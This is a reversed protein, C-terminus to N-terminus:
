FRWVLDVTFRKDIIGDNEDTLPIEYAFGLDASECLRSRFGVAATVLDRNQSANSSGFNLLDNGEFTAVAPVAGGAQNFFNFRGSGTSLVHHWNVEVLPIFWPVVEYSTHASLFCDDSMQGDFAFSVGGAGALQLRDWAKATSVILNIAGDGEGQFVDHNGTPFEFTATGSLVFSNEPDYIFAYKAGGAINAFGSQKSWTPKTDPKIRVYGDKTAVLSFRETLALEAQLAYIEVHGGMPVPGITTNVYSPLSHYMFIPHINTTPLALDFLTPNTIPRRFKDFSGATQIVPESPETIVTGAQAPVAAAGLLGTLAFALTQKM